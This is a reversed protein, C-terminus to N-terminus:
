KLVAFLRKAACQDIHHLYDFYQGTCHAEGSEDKKVRKACAQYALLYKLAHPKCSEEIDAKRDVVEEDSM